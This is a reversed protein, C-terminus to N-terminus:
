LESGEFSQVKPLGELGQVNFPGEFRLDLDCLNAFSKRVKSLSYRLSVFSRQFRSELGRGSVFAREVKSRM